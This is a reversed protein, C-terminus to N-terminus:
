HSEGAQDEMKRQPRIKRFKKAAIPSCPFASVVIIVVIVARGEANSCGAADQM